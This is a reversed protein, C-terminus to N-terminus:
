RIRAPEAYNEWGIPKFKDILWSFPHLMGGEEDNMWHRTAWENGRIAEEDKKHRHSFRASEYHHAKKFLHAYGVKNTTKIAGGGLWYKLGIEQQEQSFCGYNIDDLFGIHEMFYKRNACWCSGQFTMTDDIGVENRKKLAAVYFSYGYNTQKPFTLYHYDKVPQKYDIEWKQENLSYRRPIMLWNEEGQLAKDYGEEIVCHADIKMLFEGTARKIGENIAGRMGINKELIIPKIRHDEIIPDTKCGDIVPFIEIDEASLLSRLTNNLYPERYVPLVISLSAM